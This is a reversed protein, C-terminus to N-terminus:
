PFARELRARLAECTGDLDVLGSTALVPWELRQRKIFRPNGDRLQRLLAVARVNVFTATVRQPVDIGAGVNVRRALQSFDSFVHLIAADVPFAGEPGKETFGPLLAAIIHGDDHVETMWHQAKATSGAALGDFTKVCARSAGFGSWWNDPGAGGAGNLLANYVTTSDVNLPGPAKPACQLVLVPEEALEHDQLFNALKADFISRETVVLTPPSSTVM